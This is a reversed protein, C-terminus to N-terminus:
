SSCEACNNSVTTISAVVNQTVASMGMRISQLTKSTSIGACLSDSSDCNDATLTTLRPLAALRKGIHIWEKSRYGFLSVATPDDVLSLDSISITKNNFNVVSDTPSQQSQQSHALQTEASEKTVKTASSREMQQSPINLKVDPTIVFNWMQEVACVVTELRLRVQVAEREIGEAATTYPSQMHKAQEMEALMRAMSSGTIYKAEPQQRNRLM